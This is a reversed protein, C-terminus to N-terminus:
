RSRAAASAGPHRDGPQHQDGPGAPVTASPQSAKAVQFGANNLTQTADVQDMGEVDPVDDAGPGGVRVVTSTATRAEGLAGAPPNTRIVM